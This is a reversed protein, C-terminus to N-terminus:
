YQKVTETIVLDISDISVFEKDKADRKAYREADREVVRACSGISAKKIDEDNCFSFDINGYLKEVAKAERKKRRKKLLHLGVTIGIILLIVLLASFAIILYVATKDTESDDATTLITSSRTTNATSQVTTETTNDM